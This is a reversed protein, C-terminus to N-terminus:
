VIKRSVPVSGVEGTVWGHFAGSFKGAESGAVVIHIDEDSRFKSLKRSLAEEDMGEAAARKFGSASREDEVLDGIPRATVEQM